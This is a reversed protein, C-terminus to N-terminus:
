RGKAGPAPPLKMGPAGLIQPANVEIGIFGELEGVIVVHGSELVIVPGLKASLSLDELHAALDSQWKEKLAIREQLKPDTERSTHYDWALPSRWVKFRHVPVMQAM